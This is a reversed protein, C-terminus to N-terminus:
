KRSVECLAIEVFSRGKFIGSYRSVDLGALTNKAMKETKKENKENKGEKKRKEEKM